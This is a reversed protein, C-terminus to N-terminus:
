KKRKKPKLLKIRVMMANDGRRRRLRFIKSFGSTRKKFRPAIKEVLKKTATKNQLFAHILRQNQLTKAKARIILKDVLGKISKAKSLTTKIEEKLFLATILSRFLAKRQATTRGLKRGKKRHRM